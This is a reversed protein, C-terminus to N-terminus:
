HSRPVDRDEGSMKRPLITTDIVLYLCRGLEPPGESTRKAISHFTLQAINLTLSSQPLPM